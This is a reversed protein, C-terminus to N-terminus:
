VHSSGSYSINPYAYTVNRYSFIKMCSDAILGLLNISAIGECRVGADESHDCNHLGVDNGNALCEILTNESGNCMLNDLFISGIGEGFIANRVPISEAYIFM